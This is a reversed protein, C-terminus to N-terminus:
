PRHAACTGWAAMRQATVLDTVDDFAIVFGEDEGEAGKRTAIRVLLTRPWEGARSGSKTRNPKRASNFHREALSGFEPVAVKLPQGQVDEQLKLIREASRNIFTVTGKTDLGIVGATVSSLVSDFLRRRREIQQNTTLLADRQGKLQRTM